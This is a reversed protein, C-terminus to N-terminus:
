KETFSNIGNRFINEYFNDLEEVSMDPHNVWYKVLGFLASSLYQVLLERQRIDLGNFQSSNNIVILGKTTLFDIFYEYFRPDGNESLLISIVDRKNNVTELIKLIQSEDIFERTAIQYTNSDINDLETLIEDEIDQLIAYKDRYHRYITTRNIKSRDAIAMITIDELREEKMLDLLAVRIKDDMNNM